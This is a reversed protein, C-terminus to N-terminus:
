RAISFFHKYPQYPFSSSIQVSASCRTKDVNIHVTSGGIYIHNNSTLIHKYQRFNLNGIISRYTGLIATVHSSADQVAIDRALKAPNATSPHTFDYVGMDEDQEKNAIESRRSLIVGPEDSLHLITCERQTPVRPSTSRALPGLLVVTQRRYRRDMVTNLSTSWSDSPDM